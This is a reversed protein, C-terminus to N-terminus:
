RLDDALVADLRHRAAAVGDPITEAYYRIFTVAQEVAWGRARAWTADDVALAARYAARAEPPLSWALMVDCAPDGLGAASWDIIGALGGDRVIVNGPLLDGHVWVPPGGWPDAAVAAEWVALALELDLEGRLQLIARRTADENPALPGARRGARPGGTAVGQLAVVFAAVEGALRSWDVVSGALADKGRLWRSVLWPHPYGRGPAGGAVPEPVAVPLHPALRRLWRLEKAIQPVAWDIRPLRVVLDDGLRFIANDTGSSAARRLPLDAWRPLQDALLDRVLEEDVDVEDAHLRTVPVALSALV